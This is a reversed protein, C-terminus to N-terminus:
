VAKLLTVSAVPAVPDRKVEAYVAACSAASSLRLRFVDGEPRVVMEVVALWALSSMPGTLAPLVPAVRAALVNSGPEVAAVMLAALDLRVALACDVKDAASKLQNVWCSVAHKAM